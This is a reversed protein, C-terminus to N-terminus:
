LQLEKECVPTLAPDFSLLEQYVGWPVMEGRHIEKKEAGRPIEVHFAWGSFPSEEERVGPAGSQSFLCGKEGEGREHKHATEQGKYTRKSVPYKNQKKSM